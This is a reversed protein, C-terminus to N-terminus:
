MLNNFQLKKKCVDKKVFRKQDQLQYSRQQIKRQNIEVCMGLKFKMQQDSDSLSPLQANLSLTHQFSTIHRDAPFIPM